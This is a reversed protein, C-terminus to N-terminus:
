KVSLSQDGPRIWGIRRLLEYVGFSIGAPLIFHLLLIKSVILWPPDIGRMAAFTGFQGVIGSTGMGAAAGMNRMNFVTVALPGVIASAVTPPILIQPRKMINPMQLMSTGLGQAILGSVGNDRFSAVAFGIMQACCGVTAAGAALALGDPLVGNEATFVMACLAASSIPGTLALGVVVSVIIGMPIPAIETASKIFGQLAKILFMVAPCILLAALGGALITVSTAVIIDVKTKGAVLRGIECSIISCIFCGLPGGMQYSVAGVVVNSFMVLPPAKLSWAIAMGIAGGVVYNSKAVAAFEVIKSLGPIRGIQELILGIILTSFLGLAMASMADTFYRKFFGGGFRKKPEAPTANENM